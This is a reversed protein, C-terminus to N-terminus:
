AEPHMQLVRHVNAGPPAPAVSRSATRPSADSSDRGRPAGPPKSSESPVFLMNLLKEDGRVEHWRRKFQLTMSLLFRPGREQSVGVPGGPAQGRASCLVAPHVPIGRGLSPEGPAQSLRGSGM